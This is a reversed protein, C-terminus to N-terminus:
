YLIEWLGNRTEPKQHNPPWESFKHLEKVSAERADRTAPSCPGFPGCRVCHGIPVCPGCPVYRGCPVCLVCVTLSQKGYKKSQEYDVVEKCSWALVRYAKAELEKNGLETAIRAAQKGYEQNEKYDGAGYYSWALFM